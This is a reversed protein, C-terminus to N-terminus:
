IVLVVLGNRRPGVVYLRCQVRSRDLDYMPQQEAEPKVAITDTPLMEAKRVSQGLWYRVVGAACRNHYTALGRRPVGPVAHRESVYEDAVMIRM